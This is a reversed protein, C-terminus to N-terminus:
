GIPNKWQNVIVGLVNAGVTELFVHARKLQQRPTVNALAVLAVGDAAKSMTVPDMMRHNIPFISPTDVLVFNYAKRAQNMIETGLAFMDGESEAENQAPRRATLIDLKSIGSSIPMGAISKERRFNDLDFTPELGFCRHLAPAYWHLDVALVRNNSQRAAIAALGAVITTKGEGPAGSTVVLCAPNSKLLFNEIVSYIRKMETIETLVEIKRAPSLNM